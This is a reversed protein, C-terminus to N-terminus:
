AGTANAFRAALGEAAGMGATREAWPAPIADAGWRTGLLAGAIAAADVGGVAALETAAAFAAQESDGAEAASEAALVASLAARLAAAADAGGGEAAPAGADFAHLVGADPTPLSAIQARASGAATAADAGLSLFHTMSAVAVAAQVARPTGHTLFAGDASMKVVAAAPIHPVLGFPAAHAAAGADDFAPGVPRSSTGMQGDALSGIWDPRVAAPVRVGDQGDLWRPQALPATPSLPVGQVAAWRLSALWVCAAEDAAVGDNAWEIAELLADATFLTLQGAPGLPLTTGRDPSAAGREPGFGALAAAEATATGALCGLIRSAPSPVDM